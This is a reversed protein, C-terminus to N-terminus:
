SVEWSRGGDGFTYALLIHRSNILCRLDVVACRWTISRQSTDTIFWTVASESVATASFLTLSVIYLSGVTWSKYQYPIASSTQLYVELTMVIVQLVSLGVYLFSPVFAESEYKRILAITLSVAKLAVFLVSLLILVQM